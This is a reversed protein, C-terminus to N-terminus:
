EHQADLEDYFLGHNRYGSRGMKKKTLIGVWVKKKNNKLNLIFINSFLVKEFPSPVLSAGPHISFYSIPGGETNHLGLDFILNGYLLFTCYSHINTLTKVCIFITIGFITYLLFFNRGVSGSKKGINRSGRFLFLFPTRSGRNQTSNVKTFYM